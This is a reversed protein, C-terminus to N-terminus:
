PGKPAEIHKFLRFLDSNSTFITTTDIGFPLKFHLGPPAIQQFKGFRQVVAESEPSVTYYSSFLGVLALVGLPAM